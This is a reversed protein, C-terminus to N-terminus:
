PRRGSETLEEIERILQSLNPYTHSIHPAPLRNHKIDPPVHKHHPFTVALTADEPHPFDDYWYLREAGRYVEYGYATILGDHFDLEERIRLQVGNTFVVEGQAVGTYPSEAWVALTSYEISPRDSIEALYRSYDALSHLPNSAM